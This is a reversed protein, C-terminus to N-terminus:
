GLRHKYTQGCQGLKFGKDKFELPRIGLRILCAWRMYRPNDKRDGGGKSEATSALTQLVEDGMYIAGLQVPDVYM